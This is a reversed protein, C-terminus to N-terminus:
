EDTVAGARRALKVFERAVDACTAELIRRRAVIVVDNEVRMRCRNVRFAERLLRKARSRDVARRFTRKSAVVGLRRNEGEGARLRLVMYKGVWPRGQSFAQDFADSQAIRESRGLRYKGRM